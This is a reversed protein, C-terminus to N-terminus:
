GRRCVRISRQLRHANVHRTSGPPDPRSQPLIDLRAGPVIEVRSGLRWVVDAHAGGTVNTPPPNVEVSSGRGRTPRRGKDFVTLTQGCMPVGAFASDPSLKRDIELRAAASTNTIYTPAVNMTPAAGQSITGRSRWVCGVM